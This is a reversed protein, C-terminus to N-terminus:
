LLTQWLWFGALFSALNLLASLLWPTIGPLSLLRAYLAGEVLVVLLEAWYLGFPWAAAFLPQSYWFLTHVVLNVAIACGTARWPRPYALRAWIAMGAVEVLLTGLLALLHFITTNYLM